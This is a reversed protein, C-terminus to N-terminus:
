VSLFAELSDSFTSCACNVAPGLLFSGVPAWIIGFPRRPLVERRGSGERLAEMSEDSSVKCLVRDSM